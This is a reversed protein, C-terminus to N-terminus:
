LGYFKIAAETLVKSAASMGIEWTGDVAKKINNAIWKQTKEGFPEETSKPNETEMIKALESADSKLIGAEVLYKIFSESDRETIAVSISGSSVVANNVNGYIIQQSLQQVQETEKKDPVSPSFDVNIAGPVSKELEITLELIRNRVTQKIEYFSTSAFSARIENCSLNEYIEGQLLPILNSADLGFTKGGKIEKVIEEVTAIGDRIKYKVWSDGAYKKILYPPIQANKVGCGLVGLFTGRYSVKAVRYSPVDIEHPYGESEYKVWEELIDSGLKAALLRLKLLVSSLDSKENVVAEQIQQILSM